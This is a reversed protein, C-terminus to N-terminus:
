LWSRSMPKNFNLGNYEGSYFAKFFDDYSEYKMLELKVQRGLWYQFTNDKGISSNNGHNFKYTKYMKRTFYEFCHGWEHAVTGALSYWPRNFRRSNIKILNYNGTYTTAYAKSWRNWPRYTKVVPQFNNKLESLLTSLLYKSVNTHKSEFEDVKNEIINELFKSSLLLNFANIGQELKKNDLNIM